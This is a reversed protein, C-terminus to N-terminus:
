SGAAMKRQADQLISQAQAHQPQAEVFDQLVSVVKPYDGLNMYSIALNVRGEADQPVIRLVAEFHPISAAFQGQLGYAKGLALQAEWYNPNQTIAQKRYRLM